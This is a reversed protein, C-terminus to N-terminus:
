KATKVREEHYKFEVSPTANRQIPPTKDKIVIIITSFYVGYNGSNREVLFLDGTLLSSLLPKNSISGVM